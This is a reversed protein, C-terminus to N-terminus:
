YFSLTYEPKIRPLTFHWRSRRREVAGARGGGTQADRKRSEDVQSPFCACGRVGYFAM